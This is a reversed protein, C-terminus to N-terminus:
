PLLKIRLYQYNENYHGAETWHSKSHNAKLYFCGDSAWFMTEKWETESIQESFPMWNTYSATMMNKIKGRDIKYLEVDSTVEYPNAYICIIHQRDPSVYPFEGFSFNDEFQDKGTTKDYFKYGLWEWGSMYIVYQNLFEYQGAYDYYIENDGGSPNDKLKVDKEACHLTIVGDMKKVNATDAVFYDVKNNMQNEFTQRDILEVKLYKDLIKGNEFNDSNQNGNEGMFDIVNLDAPILKIDSFDGLASKKVFVKEWRSGEYTSHEDQWKRTIRERISYFDDATEIVELRDGYNYHLLTKSNEDPEQKADVGQKDTVVVTETVILDYDIPYGELESYTLLTDASIALASDNASHATNKSKNGCAFFTFLTITVFLYVTKKM